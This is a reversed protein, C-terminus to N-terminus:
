ASLKELSPAGAARTGCPRLPLRIEFCSGKGVESEVGITGGLLSTLRRVIYLGLGVGDHRRRDSGDVQRFMDFIIGQGEPSIGIGTDAVAVLLAEHVADVSARVVVSGADTFKLANHVLNRVVMKLKPHDTQVIPVDMPAEVSVRVGPKVWAAPIEAEVEALLSGVDVPELTVPLAGSEMRSVDLTAQILELLQRSYQLVKRCVERQEPAVPGFEGDSLLENYGIIANLPTRLEHSMTGIFESKLNNAARLNALLRGNEIATVTQQAIGTLLRCAKPHFPGPETHSGATLYGIIEGRLRLPAAAWSRLSWRQMWSVDAGAGAIESWGHHDARTLEPFDRLDFDIQKVEVLMASAARDTGAAVRVTQQKADSLVINVFECGVLDCALGTLRELRDDADPNANLLESVRLLAASIEAEERQRAHLTANEIAFAAQTAIGAVLDRQLPSFAGPASRSGTAFIGVTRNGCRMGAFIGSAVNWEGVARAGPGEAANPMEVVGEALVLAGFDWFATSITPSGGLGRSAMMRYGSSSDPDALITACWDTRLREAAVAHLREIVVGLELSTGLARSVQLLGLATEAACTLEVNTAALREGTEALRRNKHRLHRKYFDCQSAVVAFVFVAVVVLAAVHVERIAAPSGLAIVLCYGLAACSTIAASCIASVMAAPVITMLFFYGFLVGTPGLLLLGVAIALTDLILQAYVIARLDAGRAMLRRYLPSLCATAICVLTVPLWRMTVGGLYGIVPMAAAVTLGTRWRTECLWDNINRLDSAELTAVATPRDASADPPRLGRSPVRRM